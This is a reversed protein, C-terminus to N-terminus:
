GPKKLFTGNGLGEERSGGGSRLVRTTKGASFEAEAKGGRPGKTEGGRGRHSLSYVVTPIAGLNKKWGNKGGKGRFFARGMRSPGCRFPNPNHPPHAWDRKNGENRGKPFLKLSFYRTKELSVGLVVSFDFGARGQSPQNMPNKELDGPGPPAGGEWRSAPAM